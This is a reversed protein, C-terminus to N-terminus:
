KPDYHYFLQGPKVGPAVWTSIGTTECYSEFSSVQRKGGGGSVDCVFAPTNYGATTGRVKKELDIAVRLSTRLHETGRVMDHLYVYYPQINIYSLRRNLLSMTDPDDNVGKLLVCQNRVTIGISFLKNMAKRTWDTVENPSCFHTHIAVQKNHRKALRYVNELCKLWETDTIVIQPCSSLFRSAFRVRRVNPISVLRAGIAEIQDPRLLMADGGSIVVDEVEPHEELYQFAQEWNGSKAGYTEKKTAITSNGVLRSRTCYSCYVPCISIPLFLVKDPYRHTILSSYSDFDEFLPDKSSKPHDPIQESGLMIFQKRIPDSRFDAWNILSFLYPTIRINMPSKSLASEIDQYDSERLLDQLVSKM